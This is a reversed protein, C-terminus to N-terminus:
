GKHYMIIIHLFVFSCKCNRFLLICGRRLSMTSVPPFLRARRPSNTNVCSHSFVRANEMGSSPLPYFLVLNFHFCVILCCNPDSWISTLSVCPYLSHFGLALLEFFLSITSFFHNKKNEKKKKKFLRTRPVQHHYMYFPLYVACFLVCFPVSTALMFFVRISPSWFLVSIVFCFYLFFSKM